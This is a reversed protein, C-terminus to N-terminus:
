QKAIFVVEQHRTIEMDWSEKEALRKFIAMSNKADKPDSYTIKMTKQEGSAFKYLANVDERDSKPIEVGYEIKMKNEESKIENIRELTCKGCQYYVKGNTDKFEMCFDKIVEKCFHCKM